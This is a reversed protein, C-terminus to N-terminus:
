IERKLLEALKRAAKPSRRAQAALESFLGALHRDFKFVAAHPAALPDYREFSGLHAAHLHHDEGRRCVPLWYRQDMELWPFEWFPFIHHAEDAPADCYACRKGKLWEKALRSFRSNRRAGVAAGFHAGRDADAPLGLVEAM